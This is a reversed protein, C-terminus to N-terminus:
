LAYNVEIQAMHTTMIQGQPLVTQTGVTELGTLIMMFIKIMAVFVMM